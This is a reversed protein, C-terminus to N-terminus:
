SKNLTNQLYDKNIKNMAKLMKHRYIFPGVVILSGLICWLWFAFAGFTYDINRYTLENGIRNCLRHNWVVPVIFVSVISLVVVVLLYHMTHKGDHPSAIVNIEETIHSM